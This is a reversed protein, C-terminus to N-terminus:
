VTLRKKLQNFTGNNASELTATLQRASDLLKAQQARVIILGAMFQEPKQGCDLSIIDKLALGYDDASITLKDLSQQIKGILLDIESADVGQRAMRLKMAQLEKQITSYTSVRLQVVKDTKSKIAILQKQAAQCKDSLTQKEADSLTLQQEAVAKSLREDSTTSPSQQAFTSVPFILMIAVFTILITKRLM